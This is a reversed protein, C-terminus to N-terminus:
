EEGGDVVTLYNAAAWGNRGEDVPTVLYWWTIEDAEKPGERVELVEADLALFNVSSDLGPSSRINLGSGETNTIQVFSGIGIMGPMPSPPLNSTATAGIDATATPHYPTASPGPIITFIATPRQSAVPSGTIIVLVTTIMLVGAIGTSILVIPLSWYVNFFRQIIKM